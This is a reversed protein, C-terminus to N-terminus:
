VHERHNGSSSHLLRPLAHIVELYYTPYLFHQTPMHSYGPEIIMTHTQFVQQEIHSPGFEEFHDEM